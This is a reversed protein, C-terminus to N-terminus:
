EVTGSRQWPKSSLLFLSRRSDPYGDPGRHMEPSTRPLRLVQGIIGIQSLRNANYGLFQTQRDAQETRDGLRGTPKGVNCAKDPVDANLM